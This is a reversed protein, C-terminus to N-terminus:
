SSTEQFTECRAAYPRRKQAANRAASRRGLFGAAAPRIDDEEHGIVEAKAVDAAVVGFRLNRGRVDVGQGDLAPAEGVGM